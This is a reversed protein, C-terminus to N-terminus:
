SYAKRSYVSAGGVHLVHVCNNLNFIFVFYLYIYIYFYKDQLSEVVCILCGDHRLNYISWILSLAGQHDPHLVAVNQLTLDTKNINGYYSLVAKNCGSVGSCTLWFLKLFHCTVSASVEM